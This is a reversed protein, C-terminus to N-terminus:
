GRERVDNVVLHGAGFDEATMASGHDNRLGYFQLVPWITRALDRAARLAADGPRVSEPVDELVDLLRAMAEHHTQVTAFLRGHLEDLEANRPNEGQQYARLQTRYGACQQRVETLEDRIAGALKPAHEDLLSLAQGLRQRHLQSTM